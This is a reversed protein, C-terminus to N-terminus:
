TVFALVTLQFLETPDGSVVAVYAFRNGVFMLVPHCCLDGSTVKKM